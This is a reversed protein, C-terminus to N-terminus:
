SAAAELSNGPHVPTEEYKRDPNLYVETINEWNRTTRGNWREPHREKVAEYVDHRKDLVEQSKGNHREAPTLFKIGSHKKWFLSAIFLEPSYNM